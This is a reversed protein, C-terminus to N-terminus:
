GLRRHAATALFHAKPAALFIVRRDQTIDHLLPLLFILVIRLREVPDLGVRLGTGLAVFRYLLIAPTVPNQTVVWLTLMLETPVTQRIVVSVARVLTVRLSKLALSASVFCLGEYFVAQHAVETGICFVHSM